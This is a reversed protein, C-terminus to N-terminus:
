LGELYIFGLIFFKIGIFGVREHPPSPFRRTKTPFFIASSGFSTCKPPSPKKNEPAIQQRGKSKFL